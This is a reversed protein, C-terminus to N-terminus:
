IDLGFGKWLCLKCVIRTSNGKEKVLLLFFYFKIPHSSRVLIPSDALLPGAQEHLLEAAAVREQVAAIHGKNIEIDDECYM